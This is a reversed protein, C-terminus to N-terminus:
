GQANESAKLTKQENCNPFVGWIGAQRPFSSRSGRQLLTAKKVLSPEQVHGQNPNDLSSSGHPLVAPFPPSLARCAPPFSKRSRRQEPSGHREAERANAGNTARKCCTWTCTAGRPGEFILGHRPATRQRFRSRELNLQSWRGAARWTRPFCPQFRAAPGSCYKSPQLCVLPQM